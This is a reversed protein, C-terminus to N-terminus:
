ETRVAVQQAFYKGIAKAMAAAVRERWEPSTLQKEDHKSSLYGLEVLVSPVDPAKLVVFGASRMPKGTFGTVGKMESVAKKAFFLSNNKSERQVLDILIGTVEENETDLDVGAIIDARNEKHALAEAEADSAKDSLTYITAGRAEPGRVTDAHIAIFLDAENERAIRVREKLTLFKDGTRTMIVDVDGTAKLIDRLKLGYALVVDKEKTKKHGIAGPDIGGHGPDIVVLRRGDKRIKPAPESEAAAAGSGPKPRPLPIVATPEESAAENSIEPVPEEAVGAVESPPAKGAEAADAIATLSTREDVKLAAAFSEATTQVLDVVIRAPQGAQPAVVFSKEILVPGNTDLVIRSRGTEVPGYRYERILGRTNQGADPPLNFTVGPLDIMVRYPDPLVYVTYGVAKSLDAVFRTRIDDGGIRAGTAVPQDAAAAPPLRYGSLLFLLALALGVMLRAAALRPPPVSQLNM